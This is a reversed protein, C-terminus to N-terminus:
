FIYRLSLSGVSGDFSTALVSTEAEGDWEQERYKYSTKLKVSKGLDYAYFVELNVYSRDSDIQSSTKGWQASFGMRARESLEYGTSFSINDSEKVEGQSSPSLNKSANFSWTLRASRYNLLFEILSGSGGSDSSITNALITDISTFFKNESDFYGLTAGLDLEPSLKYQFGLNITEYDTQVEFLEGGTKFRNDGLAVSMALKRSFNHGWGLSWATTTNDIFNGSTYKRDAYSLSAFINNRESLKLSVDPIISTTTVQADSTFDGSDEQAERRTDADSYIADVGWGWRDGTYAHVWALDFDENNYQSLNDHRNVSAAASIKASTLATTYTVDVQPETKYSWTELEEESLFFSSNYDVTQALSGGVGWKSAEVKMASVM